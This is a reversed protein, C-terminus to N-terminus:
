RDRSALYSASKTRSNRSSSSASMNSLWHVLSAAAALMFLLLRVTAVTCYWWDLAHVQYGLGTVPRAALTGVLSKGRAKPLAPAWTQRCTICANPESSLRTQLLFSSRCTVRVNSVGSSLGLRTRMMSDTLVGRPKKTSTTRMTSTRNAVATPRTASLERM